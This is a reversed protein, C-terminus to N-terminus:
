ACTCVHTYVCGVVLRFAGMAATLEIFTANMPTSTAESAARFAAVTVRELLMLTRNVAKGTADELLARAMSLVEDLRSPLRMRTVTQEAVGVPTLRLSASRLWWLCHTILVGAFCCPVCPCAVSVKRVGHIWMDKDTKQLAAMYFSPRGDTRLQRFRFSVVRFSVCVCICAPM